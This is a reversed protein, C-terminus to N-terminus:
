LKGKLLTELQQATIVGEHRQLINGKEDLIVTTPIVRVKYLTAAKGEQDLLVPMTYGNDKLFGQVKDGEEQLNVGYFQVKEKHKQAFTNLEPMESRCPPCWTAWFNIVYVKGDGPQVTREPGAAEKLTFGPAAAKQASAQSSAPANTQAGGSSGGCGAAFLVASAFIATLIMKAKM